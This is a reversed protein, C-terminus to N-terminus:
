GTLRYAVIASLPALVFGKANLGPLWQSLADLTEPYPHGIAIAYGNERAQKEVKSLQKAIDAPTRSNDLFIDRAASPVGHKLALRRGVSAGTTLSDLFLLGRKRLALMVRDMDQASATFRSGMHNNIGVYGDMRDLNAAIRRDLESKPLGTILANPGPDKDRSRPEMPLHVLVEHGAARARAVLAEPEPGYPLVAMTLPRPLAVAKDSRYESLGMDDLVIVIRPRGDAEPALAAFRRWTPAEATRDPAKPWEAADTATRPSSPAQPPALLAAYRPLPAERAQEEVVEEAKKAVPVQEGVSSPEAGQSAALPPPLPALAKDPTRIPKSQKEAISPKPAPKPTQATTAQPKEAPQPAVALRVVQGRSTESEVAAVPQPRDDRPIAFLALGTVVAAGISLGALGLLAAEAM